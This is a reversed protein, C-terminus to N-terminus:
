VRRAAYHLEHAAPASDGPAVTRGDPDLCEILEFGHEALQREQDDRSIYYHLLSYDHGVDNVISYTSEDRELHRLRRHNRLRRPLRVVDAALVLPGTVRVGPGGLPLVGRNHTSLLLVGGPAIVRHLRDLQAGREDHDLVDLVSYSAVVADFSEPEFLSLDTMDRLHFTAGPVAREAHAIMAPSLDLAHVERAVDVLHRTLRGAGCGLELVRGGIAERQHELLATEAPRLDASVYKSLFRGRRWVDANMESQRREGREAVISM